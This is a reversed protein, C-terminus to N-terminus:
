LGVDRKVQRVQRNYYRSGPKKPKRSSGGFPDWFKRAKRRKKPRRLKPSESFDLDPHGGIKVPPIKLRDKDQKM